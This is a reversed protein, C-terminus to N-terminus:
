YDVIPLEKACSHNCVDETPFTHPPPSEAVCMVISGEIELLDQSFDLKENYLIHTRPFDSMKELDYKGWRYFLPLLYFLSMKLM